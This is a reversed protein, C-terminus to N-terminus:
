VKPMNGIFTPIESDDPEDNGGTYNCPVYRVYLGAYFDELRLASAPWDNKGKKNVISQFNTAAKQLDGLSYENFAVKVADEAGKSYFGVQACARQKGEEPKVKNWYDLLEDYPSLSSLSDGGLKKHPQPNLEEEREEKLEKENKICEKDNKTRKRQNETLTGNTDQQHETLTGNVGFPNQYTDYNILYIRTFDQGTKIEIDPDKELFRKVKGLSSWGWEKHLARLSTIIEGRKVNIIDGRHTLMEHGTHQAKEMLSM